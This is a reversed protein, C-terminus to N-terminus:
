IPSLPTGVLCAYDEQHLRLQSKNSCRPNETFDLTCPMEDFKNNHLRLSEDTTIFFYDSVALM